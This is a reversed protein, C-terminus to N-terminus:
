APQDILTQAREVLRDALGDVGSRNLLAGFESRRRALESITGQAYVDVVQWVGNTERMAYNLAVPEKGRLVLRSLVMEGGAIPQTSPQLEFREGDYNDFHNVYNAITFRRFAQVLKAQQAASLESWRPGVAVQTMLPLNFTRDIVPALKRFRAEGGLSPGQRMADVLATHFSEIVTAPSAAPRTPVGIAGLEAAGATLTSGAIGFILALGALIKKASM